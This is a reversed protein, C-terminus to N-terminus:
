GFSVPFQIAKATLNRRKRGPRFCPRIAVHKPVFYFPGTTFATRYSLKKFRKRAYPRGLFAGHPIGFVGFALCPRISDWMITNVIRVATDERCAVANEL